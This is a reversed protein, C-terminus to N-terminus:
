AELHSEEDGTAKGDRPLDASSGITVDKHRIGAGSCNSDEAADCRVALWSLRRHVGTVRGCEADVEIRGSGIRLPDVNGVRARQHSVGVFVAIKFGASIRLLEDGIKWRAAM